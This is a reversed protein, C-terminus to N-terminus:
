DQACSVTSGRYEQGDLKEIAIDLDKLTEFEVFGTGDYRGIETYVVDVGATRAFDKLDLTSALRGAQAKQLVLLKCGSLHAVRTQVDKSISELTPVRAALSNSPSANARSLREMQIDDANKSNAMYLAVKTVNLALILPMRFAPVVDKADMPDEFEVFGFGNMIKTDTIKGYDTFLDELEQKSVDRPLNGLYLRTRSVDSDGM